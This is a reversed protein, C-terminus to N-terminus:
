LSDTDQIALHGCGAFIMVGFLSCSLQLKKSAVM